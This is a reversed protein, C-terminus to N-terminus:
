RCSSRLVISESLLCVTRPPPPRPWWSVVSCGSQLSALLVNWGAMDLSMTLGMDKKFIVLFVSHALAM